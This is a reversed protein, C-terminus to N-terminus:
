KAMSLQQNFKIWHKPIILPINTPERSAPKVVMTWLIYRSAPSLASNPKTRWPSIPGPTLQYTYGLTVREKSVSFHLYVCMWQMCQIGCCVFHSFCWDKLICLFACIYLGVLVSLYLYMYKCWEVAPVHICLVCVLIGKGGVLVRVNDM